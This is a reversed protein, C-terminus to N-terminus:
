YPTAQRFPACCTKGNAPTSCQGSCARLISSLAGTVDKLLPGLPDNWVSFAVSREGNDLLQDADDARVIFVRSSADIGWVQATTEAHTPVHPSSAAGGLTHWRLEPALHHLAPHKALLALLLTPADNISVPLTSALVGLSRLEEEVRPPDKSSAVLAAPLYFFLPVKAMADSTPHGFLFPDATAHDASVLLVSQNARPSGEIERVFDALVRDSYAMTVLRRRDEVALPARLHAEVSTGIAQAAITVDEPLDFPSHGSLTLVFRYALPGANAADRFAIRLLAADTVARFAGRPLGSPLTSFDTV